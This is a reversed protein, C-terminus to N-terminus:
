LRKKLYFRLRQAEESEFCLSLRPLLTFRGVIDDVRHVGFSPPTRPSSPLHGAPAGLNFTLQSNKLSNDDPFNENPERVRWGVFECFDRWADRDYPEDESIKSPGYREKYIEIQISFGFRGNSYKTWLLDLYVLDALNIKKLDNKTLYGELERDALHCMIESTEKDAEEWMGSSLLYELVEYNHTVILEEGDQQVSAGQNEEKDIHRQNNIKLEQQKQLGSNEVTVEELLETEKTKLMGSLTNTSEPELTSFHDDIGVILREMDRNFDPGSRIQIGNRRVLGHMSEPLEPRSPMRAPSLLLPIVPIDRKLASEIEIRVFDNENELRRNGESDVVDIWQPGIVAIFVQCQSVQLDLYEAFDVGIPISDVDIFVAERGFKQTLRDHIFGAQFHSDDRRYSIFINPNSM